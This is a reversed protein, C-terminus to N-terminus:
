PIRLVRCTEEYSSELDLAVTLTESLWIPLWPLPQGVALPFSSTDLKTQRGVQRKRCTAAYTPPPTNFAPDSCDLLALLEAYLNFPRITVLDLISLCVDKRLLNLCKAVFLQRSEPRDKNAPSVIEIAAVLRRDRQLDFVLVEYAYQEPFEADLTLTPLPPSQPETAIGINSEPESGLLPEREEQQEFTCVDIEYYSGLHVRPEAVLGDPLRLSLQQVIIGPWLGHFGEWSSRKSVPPHFHDRLPM